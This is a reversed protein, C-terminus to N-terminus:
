NSPLVALVGVRGWVWSFLCHEVVQMAAEGNMGHLFVVVFQAETEGNM